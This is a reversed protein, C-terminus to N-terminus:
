LHRSVAIPTVNRANPAYARGTAGYTQPTSRKAMENSVGRLIRESVSRATALVTLNIQLKTRFQEHQQRLADLLRPTKTTLYRTSAQIRSAHAMFQRALDSKRDAITAAVSLRGARVLVTEEEVIACLETMLAAVQTAIAAAETESAIPPPPTPVIPTPLPM